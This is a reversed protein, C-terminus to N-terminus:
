VAIWLFLMFLTLAFIGGFVIVKDVVTMRELQRVVSQAVGAASLVQSLKSDTQQVRERQQRLASLVANSESVLQKVGTAVRKISEGEKRRLAEETEEEAGRPPPPGRALVNQVHNVEGASAGHAAQNGGQTSRFKAKNPEYRTSLIRLQRETDDVDGRMAELRQRQLASLSQLTTMDMVAWLPSGRAGQCLAVCRQMADEIKEILEEAPHRQQQQQHQHQSQHAHSLPAAFGRRALAAFQGCLTEAQSLAEAAGRCNGTFQAFLEAPGGNSAYM